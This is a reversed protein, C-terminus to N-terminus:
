YVHEWPSILNESDSSFLINYLYEAGVDATLCKGWESLVYRKDETQKGNDYHAEILNYFQKINRTQFVSGFQSKKAVGAAGCSDSCIVPTGEIIAESIVAGWGDHLSPLLLCDANSIFSRVNKIDQYGLWKIPVGLKRNMKKLKPELKGGGILWLEFDSKNIKRLNALLEIILETRKLVSFDGVYVFIFKNNSIYNNNKKKSELFYTFPFIKKEEVGLDRFWGDTKHGITLYGQVVKSYKQVLNKYIVKRFYSKFGKSEITELVVWFKIDEFLFVKMLNSIYSNNRLGQVIHISDSSAMKLLDLYGYEELTFINVNPYEDLSWGMKKRKESIQIQAVYNVKVGMFSLKEALNIMHPSIVTQWFWVEKM